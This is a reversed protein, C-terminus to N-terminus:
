ADADQIVVIDGTSKKFGDIVCAGKGRNNEHKILVVPVNSEQVEHLTKDKSADDIVIIERDMDNPLKLSQVDKLIKKITNEENYAPIIISLKM